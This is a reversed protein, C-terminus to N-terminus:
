GGEDGTRPAPALDAPVPGVPRSQPRVTPQPPGGTGTGPVLPGPADPWIAAAAAAAAAAQEEPTAVPGILGFAIRRNAERGAETTNDAIPTSEGFGAAEFSGVPVRRARLADLVADARQRSLRLNTEDRGQSDTHGAIRLSLNACLRLIEAIQDIAPLADASITASGPDFTIKTAATVAGIRAVCEQPTPLGAIPDLAEDYTVDISFDATPGLKEILLRSITDRAAQDGTVGQVVLTDPTMDVRGQALMSLVEIGALVRVSWGAPLVDDTIRTTMTVADSGFRARAFNEATANMLADAIRGSLEVQGDEDLLAAFAPPGEANAQVPQPLVPDLAYIDPLTNALAGAVRDFTAQPTGEPAVLVVDADSFTLTGGGLEALAAIAQAVAAGWTISPVGLALPCHIQGAAGAAIAAAVILAQADDTDAACTDFRAGRADILFRVTFPTNVPRPASITLGLGLGEPAARTLETELRRKDALSDSIATIDVRGATVSIKARPLQQLARLAYSVAPRWDDPAAYDATELLDTVTQGDASRAIDATLAARDTSAPILGILSVGSDNRLIEIAFEPAAIGAVEAVAMNDIVRSADVMGGALSMARFRVAETPARGELIVQLGDGMVRTWGQGDDALAGQVAAVSREEVVVVLLRAAVFTGFAALVFALVAVLASSIRIRKLHSIKRLVGATPASRPM